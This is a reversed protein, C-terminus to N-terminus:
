TDSVKADESGQTIRLACLVRKLFKQQIFPSFLDLVPGCFLFHSLAIQSRRSGSQESPLNGCDQIVKDIITEQPGMTFSSRSATCFCAFYVLGLNAVLSVFSHVGSCEPPLGWKEAKQPLMVALSTTRDSPATINLESVLDDRSLLMQVRKTITDYAKWPCQTSWFSGCMRQLSCCLFGAGLSLMFWVQSSFLLM